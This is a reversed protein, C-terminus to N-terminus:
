MGPFIARLGDFSLAGDTFEAHALDTERSRGYILRILGEASIRLSADSKQESWPVIRVGNTMFALDRQPEHTQVHIVHHEETAKGVRAAMEAGADVILEVAEPIITAMPDFAVAIDWSHIAHEALRLRCLAVADIEMGVAQVHFDKLAKDDLSELGKLFRDNVEISDRVQVEASRENWASWIPPFAENSPGPGGTLGAQVILSFIETQSGLHSMVQAVSWETCASQRALDTADLDKTQEVLQNHSHRLV